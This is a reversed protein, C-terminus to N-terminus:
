PAPTPDVWLLDFRGLGDLLPVTVELLAGEEGGDSKAMALHTADVKPAYIAADLPLWGAAVWAEVWAHPVFAARGGVESASVLGVVVRSPIKAARLLAALLFANETCDGDRSDLTQRATALGIGSGRYAVNDHVWRELRKAAAPAHTENAVVQRALSLIQPDDSEILSSPALYPDLDPTEAPPRPEAAAEVRLLEGAEIRQREDALFLRALSLSEAGGRPALRYAARDVPREGALSRDLLVTLQEFVKLGEEIPALAEERNALRMLLPGVEQRLLTGAADYTEQAKVGLDGFEQEIRAGGGEFRELLRAKMEIVRNGAEFSFVQYAVAEREGTLLGDLAQEAVRPGVVREDWPFTFGREVGAAEVRVTALAGAVALHSRVEGGGQDLLSEISLTQGELTELRTTRSVIVVKETVGGNLRSLENRLSERIRLVTRGDQEVRRTEVHFYGARQGLLEVVYWLDEEVAPSPAEAPAPLSGACAVLGVALCVAALKQTLFALRLPSPRM